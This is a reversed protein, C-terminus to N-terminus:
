RAKTTEGRRSECGRKLLDDALLRAVREAAAEAAERDKCVLGREQPSCRLAANEPLAYAVARFRESRDQEIRTWIVYRVMAM